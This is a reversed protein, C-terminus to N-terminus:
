CNRSKINFKDNNWFKRHKAFEAYKTWKGLIINKVNYLIFINFGFNPEVKKIENYFTSRTDELLELRPSLAMLTMEVM